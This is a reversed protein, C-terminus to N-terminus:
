IRVVRLLQVAEVTYENRADNGWWSFVIETQENQSKIVQDGACSTLMLAAAAPLALLRYGKM